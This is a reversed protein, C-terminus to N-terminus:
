GRPKPRPPPPPYELRAKQDYLPLHHVGPQWVSETVSALFNNADEEQVCNFATIIAHQYLDEGVIIPLCWVPAYQQKEACLCYRATPAGGGDGGEVGGGLQGEHVFSLCLEAYVGPLVSSFKVEKKEYDPKYHRSEGLGPKHAGGLRTADDHRNPCTHL